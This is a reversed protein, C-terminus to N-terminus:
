SSFLFIVLFSINRRSQSFKAIDLVPIYKEPIGGVIGGDVSEILEIIQNDINNLYEVIGGAVNSIQYEQNLKVDSNLKNDINQLHPM